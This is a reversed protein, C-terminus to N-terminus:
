LTWRLYLLHVYNWSLAWTIIMNWYKLNSSRTSSQYQMPWLHHHFAATLASVSHYPRSPSFPLQLFPMVMQSRTFPPPHITPFTRFSMYLSHFIASHHLYNCPHSSSSSTRIWGLCFTFSPYRRWFNYCPSVVTIEGSYRNIDKEILVNQPAFLLIVKMAPIKLALQPYLRCHYRSPGPSLFSLQWFSLCGSLSKHM